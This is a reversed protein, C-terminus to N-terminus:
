FGYVAAYSVTQNTQSPAAADTTSFEFNSAADMRYELINTVPGVPYKLTLTYDNYQYSSGPTSLSADGSDPLFVSEFRPAITLKDLVYTAYLAYGQTKPNIPNTGTNITTKYLYEGAFSLSGSLAYTGIFNFMYIPTDVAAHDQYFVATLGLDKVMTTALILGFNKVNSSVRDVSNGNDVWLSVTSSAPLAYDAKLGVHFFPELTYILSRSFNANATSNWVEYGVPTGFKGLTLTLDGFAETLYAQGIIISPDTGNTNSFNSSGLIINAKNGYILDIFAGTKSEDDAYKLTLEGNYDAQNPMVDFARLPITDAIGNNIPNNDAYLAPTNISQVYFAEAYGGLTVKDFWKSADAANAINAFASLILAGTLTRSRMRM